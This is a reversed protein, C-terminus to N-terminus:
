RPALSSWQYLPKMVPNSRHLDLLDFFARQQEVGQSRTIRGIIHGRVRRHLARYGEPNRWRLEADVLDRVLDHLFLGDRDQQVISLGRLWEFLEHVDGDDLALALRDETMVRVHATAELSARHRPGPLNRLLQQLLTRVVDPQSDASLGVDASAHELLDAVLSLALPHGHTFELVEPHRSPPVGRVRLYSRSEDPDLYRLAVPRLLPGWRAIMATSPPDRGALVTLCQAPLQPLFEDCFWRDLPALVEYTDVVLVSRGARTLDEFPSAEDDLELATRLGHLVESPTPAVSRGDLILLRADRARAIEAMKQLLSTKGIGGAGFVHLIAASRERAALTSLFLALEDERGVFHRRQTAALRDALKRAPRPGDGRARHERDSALRNRRAVVATHTSAGSGSL